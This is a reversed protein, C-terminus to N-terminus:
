NGADHDRDVVPAVGPRPDTEGRVQSVAEAGAEDPGGGAHGVVRLAVALGGHGHAHDDLLDALGGEVPACGGFLDEAM